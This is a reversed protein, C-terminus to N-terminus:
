RYIDKDIVTPVGNILITARRGEKERYIHESSRLMVGDGLTTLPFGQIVFLIFDTMHQNSM